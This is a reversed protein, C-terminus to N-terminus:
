RFRSAHRRSYCGSCQTRVVARNKAMGGMSRTSDILVVVDTIAPECSLQHIPVDATIKVKFQEVIKNRDESSQARSLPAGHSFLDSQPPFSLLVIGMISRFVIEFM